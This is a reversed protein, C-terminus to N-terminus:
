PAIGAGYREALEWFWDQDLDTERSAETVCPPPHDFLGYCLAEDDHRATWAIGDLREPHHRLAKSWAQPVDYPLGGHTVEATAGLRALGAGSLKALRLDRTIELRALSKARLLDLPILGRGPERLFTEAFAGQTQEAAYLVGYGGDPANFRGRRGADFFVPDQATNFFRTVIM